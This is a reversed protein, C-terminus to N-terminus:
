RRVQLKLMVQATANSYLVPVNLGSWGLDITGTLARTNWKIKGQADCWLNLRFSGVFGAGQSFYDSLAHAATLGGASLDRRLEWAGSSFRSSGAERLVELMRDLNTGSSSLYVVVVTEAREGPRMTVDVMNWGPTVCPNPDNDPDQLGKDAQGAVTNMQSGWYLTNAYALQLRQPGHNFTGFVEAESVAVTVEEQALSFAASAFLTSLALAKLATNM